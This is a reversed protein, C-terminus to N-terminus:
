YANNGTNGGTITQMFEKSMEKETKEDFDRTAQYM